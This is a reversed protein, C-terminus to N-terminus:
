QQTINILLNIVNFFLIILVLYKLKEFHESINANEEEVWGYFKYNYM